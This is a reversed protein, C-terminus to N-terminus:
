DLNEYKEVKLHKFSKNDELIGVVKKLADLKERKDNIIIKIEKEIEKRMEKPVRVKIIVDESM